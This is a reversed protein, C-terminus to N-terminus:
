EGVYPFKQPYIEIAITIHKLLSKYGDIKTSM